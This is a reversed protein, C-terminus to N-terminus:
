RRAVFLHDIGDVKRSFYLTRGDPSIWPDEEDDPGSLELLRRVTAFPTDASDRVAVYLDTTPGARESAFYLELRDVSFMGGTERGATTNIDDMPVAPSWEADRDARTTVFLRTAISERNSEIVALLDDSTVVGGDLQSSSLATDRVPESWPASRTARTSRWIDRVISGTRDSSLYITLGDYTVNPKNEIFPSSLESVVTPEGWPEDVSDRRMLHIDRGRDFYLELMDGTLTPDDGTVPPDGVPRVDTWAGLGADALPPVHLLGFVGDCGGVALVALALTCRVLV